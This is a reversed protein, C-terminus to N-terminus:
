DPITWRITATVKSLNGTGVALNAWTYNVTYLINDITISTWICAGSDCVYTSWTLADVEMQLPDLFRKGLEGTTMRSRAHLLYRKGTMFVSALGVLVVSLIITSVIIEM